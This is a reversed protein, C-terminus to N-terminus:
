RRILWCSHINVRKKFDMPITKRTIDEVKFATFIDESLVFNKYNSSFILTGSPKLLRMCYEILSVHDDQINFERGTRKLKSYTPPDCFILDFQDHSRELWDWCDACVLRHKDLDLNNLRFNKRSWEVYTNSADVSLSQSANGLAAHVTAASTYSFLNLFSKGESMAQIMYRTNRHDLFLGTDIYDTFNILFECNFERIKTLQQLSNQKQYQTLITRRRRQKVIINSAEIGAIDMVVKKLLLLKKGAKVLESDRSPAYEQIVAYKNEYLDVSMSFEPLDGDYVRFAHIKERAAWKRLHKFNKTIRNFIANDIFAPDLSKPKPKTEPKTETSVDPVNVHVLICEIPGNYLKNVHHARLGTCHTLEKNSALMTAKWGAFNEKILKGLQEYVEVLQDTSGLREGYPPNVAILGKRLSAGFSASIADVPKREIHIWNELGAEKINQMASLVSNKSADFGIIKPIDNESSRRIERAEGLLKRWMRPEHGLWKEFGYKKRFLGPAIHGAMLAGEILITGSGCMPDILSGHGKAIELWSGRRLLAAAVNEKLPAQGASLRYSRRHLSGGSLDLSVTVTTEKIHVSIRIEPNETDVSPRRRTRQRFYDAIADKVKLAGFHTNRLFSNSAQCDISFTLDPTMHRTWQIELIGEYLRQEDTAEFQHLRIFVRNAIQSWLCLKYANTLSGSFHVGGPTTKGIVGGAFEIESILLDETFKPSSAFFSNENQIM